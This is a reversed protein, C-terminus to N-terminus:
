QSDPLSMGMIGLLNSIPGPLGGQASYSALLNQVLNVDLDDADEGLQQETEGQDGEGERATFGSAGLSLEKLQRDLAESYQATFAENHDGDGGDPHPLTEDHPPTGRLLVDSSM